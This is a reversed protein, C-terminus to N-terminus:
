HLRFGSREARLSLITVSILQACAANTLGGIGPKRTAPRQESASCWSHRSQGLFVLSARRFRPAMPQFTAPAGQM